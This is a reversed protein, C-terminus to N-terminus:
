CKLLYNAQLLAKKKKTVTQAGVKVHTNKVIDAFPKVCMFTPCVVIGDEIGSTLGVIVNAFDEAEKITKNMKWNAIIWKKM